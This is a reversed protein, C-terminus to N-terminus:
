FSSYSQKTETGECLSVALLTVSGVEEARAHYVRTRLTATEHSTMKTTLINDTNEYIKIIM